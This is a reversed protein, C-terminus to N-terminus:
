RGVVRIQPNAERTPRLWTPVVPEGANYAREHEEPTYSPDFDPNSIYAGPEDFSKSTDYMAKQNQLTMATRGRAETPYQRSVDAYDLGEDPWGGMFEGPPATDLGHTKAYAELLQPSNLHSPITQESGFDSVMFGPASPKTATPIHESFGGGQLEEHLRQFQKTM